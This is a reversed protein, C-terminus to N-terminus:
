NILKNTLRSENGSTGGYLCVNGVIVNEHALFGNALSDRHPYVAIKGGSLGKGVYDNSDGQM